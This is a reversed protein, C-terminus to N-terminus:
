RYFWFRQEAYTDAAAAGSCLRNSSPRTFLINEAFARYTGAVKYATYRALFHLFWQNRRARKGVKGAVPFLPGGSATGYNLAYLM